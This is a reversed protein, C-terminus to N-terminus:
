ILFMLCYYSCYCAVQNSAIDWVALMEGSEGGIAMQKRIHRASKFNLLGPPSTFFFDTVVIHLDLLDRNQQSFLVASEAIKNL